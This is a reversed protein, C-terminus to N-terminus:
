TTQKSQQQFNTRRWLAQHRGGHLGYREGEEGDHLYYCQCVRVPVYAALSWHTTPCGSRWMYRRIIITVTELSHEVSCVFRKLELGNYVMSYQYPIENPIWLRCDDHQKSLDTYIHINIELATRPRGLRLTHLWSSQMFPHLFNVTSLPMILIDKFLFVSIKHKGIM